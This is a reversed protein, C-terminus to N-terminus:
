ATNFRTMSSCALMLAFTRVFVASSVRASNCYDFLQSGPRKTLRECNEGFSLYQTMSHSELGSIIRKTYGFLYIRSLM